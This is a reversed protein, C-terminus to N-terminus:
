HQALSLGEGAEELVYAHLQISLLVRCILPQKHAVLEQVPSARQQQQQQQQVCQHQLLKHLPTAPM